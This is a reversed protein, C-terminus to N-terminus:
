QVSGEMSKQLAETVGNLIGTSTFTAGSVVDIGSTQAEIIREPLVQAMDLWAEDEQSADVIEVAVIWGGEITVQTTVTGGYGEASGAFVGDTAYPGVASAREAEAIQDRALADAAAADVAWINYLGLTVVIAVLSLAKAATYQHRHLVDLFTNSM